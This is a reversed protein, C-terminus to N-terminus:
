RRKRPRTSTLKGLGYAGGRRQVVNTPEKRTKDRDAKKPRDSECRKRSTASAIADRIGLVARQLQWDHPLDKCLSVLGAARSSRRSADTLSTQSSIPRSITVPAHAGVSLGAQRRAAARHADITADRGSMLRRAPRMRMGAAARDDPSRAQCCPRRWCDTPHRQGRRRLEPKPVCNLRISSNEQVSRRVSHTAM